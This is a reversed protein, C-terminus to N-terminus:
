NEVVTTTQDAIGLDGFMGQETVTSLVETEENAPQTSNGKVDNPNM